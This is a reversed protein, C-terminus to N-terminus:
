PKVKRLGMFPTLTGIILEVTSQWKGKICKCQTSDLRENIYKSLRIPLGSSREIPLKQLAKKRLGKKKQM